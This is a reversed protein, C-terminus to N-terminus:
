SGASTLAAALKEIDEKSLGSTLSIRLRATGAPVTPPRIARVGFGAANLREACELAAENSGLVIPVIQSESSRTEFGAEKLRMRLLEGLEKLHERRDAAARALRLAARVQLAFYPPPATSFIFSRARNILYDKLTKSGAVFAGASALAKGCTHVTALISNSHGSEAVLGRGEPGVVGTAHAEDVIMNAQYRECLSLLDRLPARDGDMSFISEVVVFKEGKCKKALADALFTLDLHPFIVREARTMRIGDVISAHNLEDSYVIDDPRLISSLLGTNAAYGSSFFLAAEAGAFNAFEEELEDWLTSHGSLLRSGTGGVACGETIAAAVAERLRPDRALALYDNSCFNIGCPQELTRFQAQSRLSDLERQLRSQIM